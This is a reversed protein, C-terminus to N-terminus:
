PQGTKEPEAAPAQASLSKRWVTLGEREQIRFRKFLEMQAPSLIDSARSLVDQDLQSLNTVPDPTRAAAGAMAPNYRPDTAEFIMRSLATRQVASLPQGADAADNAFRNVGPRVWTLELGFDQYEAYNAPGLLEAISKEVAAASRVETAGAAAGERPSADATRNAASWDSSRQALLEILLRKLQNLGEDSLKLRIFLDGYREQVLRRQQRLRFATFEPDDSAHDDEHFTGAGARAVELERKLQALKEASERLEEAHRRATQTATEREAEIAAQADAVRERMEQIRKEQRWLFAALVLVLAALTAAVPPLYSRM